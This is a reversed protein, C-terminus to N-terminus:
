ATARLLREAEGLYRTAGVSRWFDVARRLQEDAEPRRGQELLAEAARMRALAEAPRFPMSAWIDAAEAYRGAQSARMGAVWPTTTTAEAAARRLAQAVAHPVARSSLLASAVFEPHSGFRIALVELALAEARPHGVELLIFAAAALPAARAQPDAEPSLADLARLAEEVATDADGRSFTVLARFARAHPEM